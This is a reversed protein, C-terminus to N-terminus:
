LPEGSVFLATNAETSAAYRLPFTIVIVISGFVHTTVQNIFAQADNNDDRHFERCDTGRVSLRDLLGPMSRPLSGVPCPEGVAYIAVWVGFHLDTALRGVLGLYRSPLEADRLRAVGKGDRRRLSFSVSVRVLVDV